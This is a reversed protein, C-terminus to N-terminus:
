ELKETSMVRLYEVEPCRSFGTRERKKFYKTNKDIWSYYGNNNCGTERPIIVNPESKCYVTKGEPRNSITYTDFTCLLSHPCNSSEMLELISKNRLLRDVIRQTEQSGEKKERLDPRYSFAIFGLYGMLNFSFSFFTDAANKYMKTADKNDLVAVIRVLSSQNDDGEEKIENCNCIPIVEIKQSPEFGLLFSKQEESFAPLSPIGEDEFGGINFDYQARKELAEVHKQEM